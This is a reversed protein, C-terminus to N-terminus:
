VINRNKHVLEIVIKANKRKSKFKRGDKKTSNGTKFIIILMAQDIEGGDNVGGAIIKEVIIEFVTRYFDTLMKDDNLFCKFDYLKQKVDLEFKLTIEM